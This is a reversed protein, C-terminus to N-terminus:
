RVQYRAPRRLPVLGRFGSNCHEVRVRSGYFSASKFCTVALTIVLSLIRGSICRGLCGPALFMSPPQIIQNLQGSIAWSALGPCNTITRQPSSHRSGRGSLMWWTFSLPMARKKATHASPLPVLHSDRRWGPLLIPRNPGSPLPKVIDGVDCLRSRTAPPIPM